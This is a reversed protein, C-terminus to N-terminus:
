ILCGDLAVCDGKLICAKLCCERLKNVQNRKLANLPSVAFVISNTETLRFGSDMFDSFSAMLQYVLLKGFGTPLVFLANKKEVIVIRLIQMEKLMVNERGIVQITFNVGQQEVDNESLLSTGSSAMNM